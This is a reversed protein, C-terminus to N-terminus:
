SRKRREIGDDDFDFTQITDWTCADRRRKNATAHIQMATMAADWDRSLFPGNAHEVVVWDGNEDRYQVRYWGAKNKIIRMKM